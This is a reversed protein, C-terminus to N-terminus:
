PLSILPFADGCDIRARQELLTAIDDYRSAALADEPQSSRKFSAERAEQATRWGTANAANNVKGRQCGAILAQHQSIVVYAFLAALVTLVIAALRRLERISDTM